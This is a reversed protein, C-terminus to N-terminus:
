RVRPLSSQWAAFAADLWAAAEAEAVVEDGNLDAEHWTAAALVPGPSLTYTVEVGAPTLRLVYTQLYMDAPHAHSAPLKGALLLWCLCLLAALKRHHRKVMCAIKNSEANDDLPTTVNVQGDRAIPCPREATHAKHADIQIGTFLKKVHIKAPLKPLASTQDTFSPRGNGRPFPRKEALSFQLSSILPSGIELRWDGTEVDGEDRQGGGPWFDV